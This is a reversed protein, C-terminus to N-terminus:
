SMRRRTPHRRDRWRLPIWAITLSKMPTSVVGSVPTKVCNWSSAPMGGSASRTASSRAVSRVPRVREELELAAPHGLGLEEVRELVLELLLETPVHGHAREGVVVPRRERVVLPEDREQAVGAGGAVAERQQRVVDLLPLRAPARLPRDVLEELRDDVRTEDAQALGIRRDVRQRQLAESRGASAQTNM